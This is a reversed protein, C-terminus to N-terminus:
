RKKWVLYSINKKRSYREEGWTHLQSDEDRLLGCAYQSGVLYVANQVQMDVLLQSFDHFSVAIKTEVVFTADERQCIARRISLNKPNNEVIRGNDVLPYQRFFDGNQEIAEEFLPSKEIVGVHIEGNIIAVYGKKALGKSIVEGRHVCAGVIKGNDKRIDAAQLALVIDKNNKDIRGVHFEPTANEAILIRIPIDNIESERIRCYSQGNHLTDALLLDDIFTRNQKPAQTEFQSEIEITDFEVTPMEFYDEQPKIEQSSSPKAVFYGVGAMALLGISIAAVAWLCGKRRPKGPKDPQAQTANPAANYPASDGIIRIETDKIEPYNSM